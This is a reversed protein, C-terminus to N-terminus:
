MFTAGSVPLADVRTLVISGGWPVFRGGVGGIGGGFTIGRTSTIDPLGACTVRIKVEHVNNAENSESVVNDSDLHLSLIHIGSDLYAQTDIQRTEGGALTLSTQEAITTM